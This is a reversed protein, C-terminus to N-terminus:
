HCYTNTKPWRLPLLESLLHFSLKQNSLVNRSPPLKLQNFASLKV